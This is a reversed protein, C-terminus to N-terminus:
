RDLIDNMLASISGHELAERIAKKLEEPIVTDGIFKFVDEVKELEPELGWIGYFLGFIIEKTTGTVEISDGNDIVEVDHEYKYEQDGRELLMGKTMLIDQLNNNNLVYMLAECLEKVDASLEVIKNNEIKLITKM